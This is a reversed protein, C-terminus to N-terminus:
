LALVERTAGGEIVEGVEVRAEVRIDETGRLLDPDRGRCAEVGIAM